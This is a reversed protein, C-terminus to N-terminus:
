NSLRLNCVQNMYMMTQPAQSTYTAPLQGLGYGVAGHLGLTVQQSHGGMPVAPVSMMPLVGQPYTSAMGVSSSMMPMGLPQTPASSTVTQLTNFMHSLDGEQQQLTHGTSPALQTTTMGQSSVATLPNTPPTQVPILSLSSSSITKLSISNSRDVSGSKKLPDFEVDEDFTLLSNGEGEGEQAM